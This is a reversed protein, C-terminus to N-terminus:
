SNYNDNGKATNLEIAYTWPKNTGVDYDADIAIFTTYGMYTLGDKGLFPQYSSQKVTSGDILPIDKGSNLRNFLMLCWLSLKELTNLSSTPVLNQTPSPSGSFIVASM